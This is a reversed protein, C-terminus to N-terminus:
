ELRKSSKHWVITLFIAAMGALAAMNPLIVHWLDGALFVTQLVSVFYRAPLLHTV